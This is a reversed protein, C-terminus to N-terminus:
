GASNVAATWPCCALRSRYIEEWGARRQHHASYLWALHDTSDSRWFSTTPMTFLVKALLMQVAAPWLSHAQVRMSQVRSLLAQATCQAQQSMLRASHRSVRQSRGGARGMEAGCGAVEQSGQLVVRHAAGQAVAVLALALEDVGVRLYARGAAACAAVVHGCALKM